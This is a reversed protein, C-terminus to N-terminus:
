HEPAESVGPPGMPKGASLRPPRKGRMAQQYRNYSDFVLVVLGVALAGGLCLRSLPIGEEETPIVKVTITANALGGSGDYARIKIIYTGEKAYVHGATLNGLVEHLEIPPSGDGWDVKVSQLPGEDDNVQYELTLNGGARVTRDLAVQVSPPRNPLLIVIGSAPVSLNGGATAECYQVVIKITPNMYSGYFHLHYTTQRLEVDDIPTETWGQGGGPLQELLLHTIRYFRQHSDPTIPEWAPWSIDYEHQAVDSFTVWTTMDPGPASPARLQTTVPLVASRVVLGLTNVVELGVYSTASWPLEVTSNAKRWDMIRYQRNGLAFLADPDPWSSTYVRYEAFYHESRWPVWGVIAADIDVDVVGLVPRPPIADIVSVEFIFRRRLSGDSADLTGNVIGVTTYAHEVVPGYGVTGDGFDWTFYISDGNHDWSRSADFRHPVSVNAFKDYSLEIFPPLQSEEVVVTCVAEATSHAGVAMITLDTRKPAADLPVAVYAMFSANGGPDVFLADVYITVSFDVSGPPTSLVIMYTDARTGANHLTLNFAGTAEQPLMLTSPDPTLASGFREEAVDIQIELKNNSRNTEAVDYGANAWVELVNHGATATWLFTVNAEEGPDLALREMMNPGGEPRSLTVAFQGTSGHGDNRLDAVISVVDGEVAGSPPTVDVGELVIDPATALFREDAEAYASSWLATLNRIGAEVNEVTLNWLRGDYGRIGDFSVGADWNSRFTALMEAYTSGVTVPTTGDDIVVTSGDRSNVWDALDRVLAGPDAVRDASPLPMKVLDLYLQNIAADSWVRSEYYAHYTADDPDYSPHSHDLQTWDTHGFQTIDLLYHSMLSAYYAALHEHEGQYAGDLRWLYLQDRTLNFLDWVRHEADGKAPQWSSRPHLYLTHNAWDMLASDPDDTWALFNDDRTPESDSANFSPGWDSQNFLYWESAWRISGYGTIQLDRLAIDAALDHVGYAPYFVNASDGNGWAGSPASLAPLGLGLMIAMVLIAWAARDRM